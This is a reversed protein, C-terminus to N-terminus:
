YSNRYILNVSAFNHKGSFAVVVHQLYTGSKNWLPYEFCGYVLDQNWKLNHKGKRDKKEKRSM